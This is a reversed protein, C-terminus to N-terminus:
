PDTFFLVFAPTDVSLADTTPNTSDDACAGIVAAFVLSLLALVTKM